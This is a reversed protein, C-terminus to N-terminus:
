IQDNHMREHLKRSRSIPKRLMRVDNFVKVIRKKIDKLKKRNEPKVNFIYWRKVFSGIRRLFYKSTSIWLNCERICKCDECFLWFTAKDCSNELTLLYEEMGEIINEFSSLLSECLSLTFHSTFLEYACNINHSGRICYLGIELLVKMYVENAYLKKPSSRKFLMGWRIRPGDNARSSFILKVTNKREKLLDKWIMCVEEFGEYYGAMLVTDVWVNFRSLMDKGPVVKGEYIGFDDKIAKIGALCNLKVCKKVMFDYLYYSIYKRDRLSKFFMDGLKRRVKNYLKIIMNPTDCEYFLRLFLYNPIYKVILTNLEPSIRVDGCINPFLEKYKGNCSASIQVFFFQTAEDELPVSGLINSILYILPDSSRIRLKKDYKRVDGAKNLIEQSYGASTNIFDLTMEK